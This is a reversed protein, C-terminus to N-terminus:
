SNRELAKAGRGEAGSSEGGDTGLITLIYILDRRRRHKSRTNENFNRAKASADTRGSVIM